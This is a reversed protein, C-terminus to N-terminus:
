LIPDTVLRINYFCADGPNASVDEFVTLEGESVITEAVQEFGFRLDSSRWVSYTRDPASQWTLINGEGSAPDGFVVQEIALVSADDNPDTGALFESYNSMSDDDDDDAADEPDGTSLGNDIEWFNPIGDGDRDGQLEDVSAPPTNDVVTLAEVHVSQAVTQGTRRAYVQVSTFQALDEAFRSADSDPGASWGASYATPIRYEAWEGEQAASLSVSWECSAGCLELRLASSAPGSVMIRVSIESVATGPLIAETAVIASDPEPIFQAPFDAVATNIGYERVVAATTTSQTLIVLVLSRLALRLFFSAIHHRKILQYGVRSRM